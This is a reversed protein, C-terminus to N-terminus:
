RMVLFTKLLLPNPYQKKSTSGMPQPSSVASFKTVQSLTTMIATPVFMEIYLFVTWFLQLLQAERQSDPGRECNVFNEATEDGCGIPDVELFCYGFGSNNFVKRTILYIWNTQFCKFSAKINCDQTTKIQLWM